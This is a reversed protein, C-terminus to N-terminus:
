EEKEQKIIKLEKELFRVNNFLDDLQRMRATKRKWEKNTQAIDGSSYIGPESISKTLLTSVTLHVNDCIELHGIVSVRGALTCGKGIVTGGAVGTTAAMATADGIEVNHAIHVLNDLKVCNGIVTNNLAGRDITSNAGIEFDDGILVGGLQPIKLWEGSDNAFGFGDSGIIVGSHLIARNGIKVNHYINVGSWLRSNDGIVVNKGLYCGPGITVNEGIECGSDIVVKAAISATAAIKSDASIEAAPHIGPEQQPTTDFLQAAKAYGLYPNDMLLMNEVTNPSSIQSLIRSSIIVASASTTSLYKQYQINTLFSLQGSAAKQIDAVSDVTISHDGRCEAGILKAIEGLSLM